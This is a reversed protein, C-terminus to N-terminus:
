EQHVGCRAARHQGVEVDVLELRAALSDRSQFLQDVMMKFTDDDLKLSSL